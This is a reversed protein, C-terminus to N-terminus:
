PAGSGRTTTDPKDLLETSRDVVRVDIIRDHAAPESSNDDFASFGRVEIHGRLRTVLWLGLLRRGLPVLLVLALLDTLVGPVILLIGAVLLSLTKGAAALPAQGSGLDTQMTRLSVRSVRRLLATGAVAGGAVLILAFGLSAHRGIWILLVLDVVPLIVIWLLPNM